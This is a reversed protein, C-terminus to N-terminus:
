GASVIKVVECGVVTVGAPPDQNYTLVDHGGGCQVKGGKAPYTLWIRDNGPGGFAFDTGTGYLKDKGGGGVLYDRVDDRGSVLVDDGAEGRLEDSGRQGNVTDDGAGAMVLDDGARAKVIDDGGKADIVDAHATGNLKDPGGTGDIPKAASASAATTAIVVGGLVLASRRVASRVTSRTPRIPRRNMVPEETTTIAGM